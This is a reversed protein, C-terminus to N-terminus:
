SSWKKRDKEFKTKLIKKGTEVRKGHGSGEGSFISQYVQWPTKKKKNIVKSCYEQVSERVVQSKTTGLLEATKKLIEVTEEDLRTSSPM